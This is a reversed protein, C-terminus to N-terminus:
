IFYPHQYNGGVLIYSLDQLCIWKQYIISMLKWNTLNLYENIHEKLSYKLKRKNTNYMRNSLCYTCGGHNRCSRDFRKAGKFYPKRHDKRNPYYVDFSM